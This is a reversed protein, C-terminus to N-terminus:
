NIMKLGIELINKAANLDRDHWAGCKPCKWQRIRLDKVEHNIYGCVSCTKSSAYWRDITILKKGNWDSKYKLQRRIEGWSADSIERGLKSRKMESICLDEICIIDYANVLEHTMKHSVDQRQNRIKKHVKAVKVRQKEYNKSGKTKRSLKRQERALKKRNRSYTRPNDYEKGDSTVALTKGKSSDLRCCQSDWSVSQVRFIKSCTKQAM